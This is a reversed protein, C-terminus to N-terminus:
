GQVEQHHRQTVGQPQKEPLREAARQVSHLPPNTPSKTVSSGIKLVSKRVIQQLFISCSFAQSGQTSPKHHLLASMLCFIDTAGRNCM